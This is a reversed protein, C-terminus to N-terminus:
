VNELRREPSIDLDTNGSHEPISTCSETPVPLDGGCDQAQPMNISIEDSSCLPFHRNVACPNSLAIKSAKKIKDGEKQICLLPWAGTLDSDSAARFSSQRHYCQATPQM